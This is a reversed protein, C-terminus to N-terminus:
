AADGKSDVQVAKNYSGQRNSILFSVPAFLSLILLVPMVIHGGQFVFSRLGETKITYIALAILIILPSSTAWMYVVAKKRNIALKSNPYFYLLGLFIIYLGIIRIFLSEHSGDPGIGLAGTIFGYAICLGGIIKAIVKLLSSLKTM